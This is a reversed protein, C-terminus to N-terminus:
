HNNSLAPPYMYPSIMTIRNSKKYLDGNNTHFCKTHDGPKYYSVCNQYNTKVFYPSNGNLYYTGANAAANGFKSKFSSANKTITDLKLKDIRTSSEVAGQVSFNRNNPKYITTPIGNNQCREPCNQTYFTQPGLLENNPYLLNGKSDLYNINQIPNTTIKQNYLKCRSKLYSKSDTYYKKSLITTAPKIITTTCCIKKGIPGNWGNEVDTSTITYSCNKDSNNCTINNKSISIKSIINFNTNSTNINDCCKSEQNVEGGLYNTGGPLFVDNALKCITGGKIKDSQLQKRWHKIPRPLFANGDNAQITQGLIWSGNTDPRANGTISEKRSIGKWSKYEQLNWKYTYTNYNSM